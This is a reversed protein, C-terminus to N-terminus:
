QSKRKISIIFSFDVVQPSLQYEPLTDPGCANSGLGTQAADIYLYLTDEWRIENIHAAQTLNELSCYHISFNLVPQGKIRLGPSDKGDIAVWRVDSRNGNEQPNIYAHFLDRTGLKYEGVFASDKSDPYSEHPGRGYWAVQSYQSALRTKFGLRPLRTLLNFPDFKLDFKLFGGPLFTYTLRYQSHPKYGDAALKGSVNIVIAKDDTPHVELRSPFAKTRDLGDLIWEKAIHVDNDTPARWINIKLPELLIQSGEVIWSEIWGTDPNITFTQMEDNVTIATDSQTLSLGQIKEKEQHPVQQPERLLHQSRAIIHGTQAWSSDEKLSFELELWIEKQLTFELDNEPIALTGEANPEIKPLSLTGQKIVKGEAKIRYSGCLHDLTRFHHRNKIVVTKREWDLRMVHVPQYWYQLEYLGPHPERNPNVLGDICFNGDNPIDGFDGGYLFSSPCAPDPNRIGQDVWDWVCGGILRPYQYILEWYERLNGPSNGMAHAYECMFYPKPDDAENEGASRLTKITPYMVSVVDVIEAEGAGEYHILRSPDKERVWAAMRDINRGYGSENGLSWFVVSPHNKDREVLREARDLCAAEWDESDSLENWKGTIQFGHTELDAEDILYLGYRDCLSYWCPHNPYHSTRVTNINFQKMMRIDKEMTEKSVTWGSDPDFEHRNVGKLKIPTGNIHLQGESTEVHRFGIRFGATEVTGDNENLTEVVLEYLEPIEASWANIGSLTEQLNDKSSLERSFLATDNPDFLTVRLPLAEGEFTKFSVTLDGQSTECRYDSFVQVDLLFDKPRISLYVDRFIGHLRWMDQDELYAGDCWKYVVVSLHNEGDPNLFPNVLFESTMHSGKCAGVFEGNLYVEFASSVGLFSLVVQKGDVGDPMLFTRHYLGTPNQSPVHPPDVPFPYMVNLYQPKDFGAMEWCGPVNLKVSFSNGQPNILMDNPIKHPSEFFAFGWEGNLNIISQSEELFDPIPSDPDPYPIFWAHAPLANIQFAKPDELNLM